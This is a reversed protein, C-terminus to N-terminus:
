QRLTPHITRTTAPAGRPVYRGSVVLRLRGPRAILARGRVTLALWLSVTRARGFRVTARGLTVRGARWTIMLSGAGLTRVRYHYGRTRLLGRRSPRGALVRGLLGRLEAAGALVAGSEPSTRSVTAAANVASVVVHLPHGRDRAGLRYTTRTANRVNECRPACRQWQYRFVIRAGSWVGPRATLRDGVRDTGTISPGAIAVPALLNFQAQVFVEPSGPRSTVSCTPATGCNPESWGAFTSGPAPSETFTTTSDAAITGECTAGCSVGAGSDTVTGDGTGLKDVVVRYPRPAGGDSLYEAVFGGDRPPYTGVVVISGNPAIALGAVNAPGSAVSVPQEGGDGFTTDLSGDPNFRALPGQAGISVVIRGQRDQTALTAYGSVASFVSGGSGFTPDLSGDSQFRLLTVWSDGGSAKTNLEGAGGVVVPRDGSALVLAGAGPRAGLDGAAQDDAGFSPDPAGDPTRADVAFGGGSPQGATYIEGSSAVVLGPVPDAYAAASSAGASGFSADLTGDNRYRVLFAETGQANHTTVSALISGSPGAALGDIETGSGGAAPTGQTALTVYGPHGTGAGWSLDPTGDAHYRALVPLDPASSEATPGSGGLLITGDPAVWVTAVDYVGSDSSVASVAHGDEGFSTDLTGDANYRTVDLHFDSPAVLVKGDPQVALKIRFGGGTTLPQGGNFLPDLDGPSASALGACGLVGILVLLAVMAVM